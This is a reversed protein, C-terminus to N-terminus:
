VEIYDATLPDTYISDGLDDTRGLPLGDRLLRVGRTGSPSTIGSGRISVRASIQGSPNQTYVGPTKSLADSLGLVAGDRYTEAPIVSVNGPTADRRVYGDEGPMSVGGPTVRVVPLRPVSETQAWSPMATIGLTAFLVVNVAQMLRKM